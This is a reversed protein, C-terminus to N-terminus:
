QLTASYYGGSVSVHEEQKNAGLPSPMKKMEDEEGEGRTPNHQAHSEMWAGVGWICGGVAVVM